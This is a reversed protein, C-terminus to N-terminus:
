VDVIEFYDATGHAWRPNFDPRNFTSRYLEPLEDIDGGRFDDATMVILCSPSGFGMASAMEYVEDIDLPWHTRLFNALKRAIMGDCGAVIKMIVQGSHQVTVLGQTAM